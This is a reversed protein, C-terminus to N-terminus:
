GHLTGGTCAAMHHQPASHPFAIFSVSERRLWHTLHSPQSSRFLQCWGLRRRSTGLSSQCYIMSRATGLAEDRAILLTLAHTHTSCPNVDRHTGACRVHSVIRAEVTVPVRKRFGRRAQHEARDQGQAASIIGSSRALREESPGPVSSLPFRVPFGRSLAQRSAPFGSCRARDGAEWIQVNM